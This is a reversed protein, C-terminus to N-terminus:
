KFTDPRSRLLCVVREDLRVERGRAYLFDPRADEGCRLEQQLSALEPEPRCLQVVAAQRHVGKLDNRQKDRPIQPYSSSLRHMGGPSPTRSAQAHSALCQLLGGCASVSCGDLWVTVIRRMSMEIEVLVSRCMVKHLGKTTSRPTEQTGISTSCNLWGRSVDVLM